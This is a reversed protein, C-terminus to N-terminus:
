PFLNIPFSLAAKIANLGQVTVHYVLHICGGSFTLIIVRIIAVEEQTLNLKKLTETYGFTADVYDKPFLSSIMQFVFCSYVGRYMDGKVEVGRRKYM